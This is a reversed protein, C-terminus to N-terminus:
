RAPPPAAIIAAVRGIFDQIAFPKSIYHHGPVGFYSDFMPAEHGSMLLVPVGPRLLEIETVADPGLMQPMVGDVIALAFHDNTSALHDIAAHPDAWDMVRYGAGTLAKVVVARLAHNDDIVMIALADGKAAM